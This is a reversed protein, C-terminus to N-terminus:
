KTPQFYELTVIAINYDRLAQLYNMRIESATQLAQLYEVYSIEGAQFARQAQTLMLEANPLASGEYYQLNNKEKEYQQHAERFQGNLNNRALELNSEAIQQDVKAARVRSAYPKNFIPFSV